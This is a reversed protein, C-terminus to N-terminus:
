HRAIRSLIRTPSMDRALQGRLSFGATILSGSVPGRTRTVTKLCDTFFPPL